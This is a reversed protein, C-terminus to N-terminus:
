QTIGRVYVRACSVLIRIFAAVLTLTLGIGRLGNANVKCRHFDCYSVFQQALIWSEQVPTIATAGANKQVIFRLLQVDFDFTLQQAM